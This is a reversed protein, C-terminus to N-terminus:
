SGARTRIDRHPSSATLRQYLKQLSPGPQIKLQEHLERSCRQYQRLALDRKGMRLYCRMIGYHATELCPDLTLLHQWHQLSEDWLERRWAILALQHHAEIFAARLKQRRPICWDSYFAEVYDGRYLNVMKQFAQAANEDDGDELATKALRQQEEFAAVDHWFQGYVAPLDLRYQGSRQVLCAEGIAQRLYYITSRFTQNIRGIDDADPWLAAIIQDKRLPQKNELLFFCLEMARAMRWRTVPTTDILVVPEGLAYISLRENSFLKWGSPSDQEIVELLCQRLAPYAQLEVQLSYDLDDKLSLTRKERLIKRAEEPQGIALYCAALRALSQAHLWVIGIEDTLRVAEELLLRAEEYHEQALLITGRMLTYSISEYSCTEDARLVTQDLLHQATHLDEMRLYALSLKNLISNLLYRDALQHALDLAGELHTLAQQFRQCTLELEGFALLAYAESSLFRPSRNTLKLIHLFSAEAEEVYGQRMKLLGIGTLNNIVSQPQGLRAQIANVRRRHHEAITYNGTWEYANALQHHLEGALRADVQPHCLRLALQFQVIGEDIPQGSLIMCIGLQQYAHIRLVREDIPLLELAQQLHTTAQVHEGQHLLLKGSAIAFSARMLAQEVHESAPLPAALIARAENGELLVRAQAFDGRRLYTNARLLLLHANEETFRPPFRHLCQLVTESQGQNFLTPAAELIIRAALEYTQGDLAYSLAKEYEYREYWLTAVRQYLMHYRESEHRRLHERLLERITPQCIYVPEETEGILVVFLGQREARELIAASNSTELLADCFTPALEDLPSTDKLFHYVETEKRFVETMVFSLLQHHNAYLASITRNGRQPTAGAEFQASGLRSGLLIGTIWGDFITALKEAEEESLASLGQMQALAQLEQVSFHLSSCGLGFIKRGTILAALELDPQARSEIVLRCHAPLHKLLYSVMENITASANVEQYNCLALLCPETIESAVATSLAELIQQPVPTTSATLLTEVQQGFDPFRQRISALLTNLFTLSDLDSSELFYWCCTLSFYSVTDALLTTKGYGAPAALIILQYSAPASDDVSAGLANGLIWLLHERHLIRPPVLPAVIKQSDKVIDMFGESSKGQSNSRTIIKGCHCRFGILLLLLTFRKFVTSLSTYRFFVLYVLSEVEM